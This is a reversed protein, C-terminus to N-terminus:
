FPVGKGRRILDEMGKSRGVRDMWDEVYVGSELNVESVNLPTACEDEPHIKEGSEDILWVDSIYTGDAYDTTIAHTVTKGDENYTDNLEYLTNPKFTQKSM